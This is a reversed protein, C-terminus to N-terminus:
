RCYKEMMFLNQVREIKAIQVDDNMTSKFLKELDKFEVWPPDVRARYYQVNPPMPCWHSPIYSTEARLLRHVEERYSSDGYM